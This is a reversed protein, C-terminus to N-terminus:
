SPLGGPMKPRTVAQFYLSRESLEGGISAALVLLAAAAAVGRDGAFTGVVVLGPLVLGGALGLFRRLGAQRKLPGRLLCATRPLPAFREDDGGGRAGTVRAEFGLKAASALTLAGAVLVVLRTTGVPPGSMSVGLSSLATALGLVLTTGAFKVGSM